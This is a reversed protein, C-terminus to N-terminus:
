TQKPTQCKDKQNNIPNFIFYYLSQVPQTQLIYYYYYSAPYIYIKISPLIQVPLISVAVGRKPYLVYM